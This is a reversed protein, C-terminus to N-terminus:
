VDGWSTVARPQVRILPRSELDMAEYQPYRGRLSAIASPELRGEALVEATGRVMVYALRSWDDDYRDFLLAVEPNVEINRLRKLQTTSKPKEDVAIWFFEDHYAFCVPVV